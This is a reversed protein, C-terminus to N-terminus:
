EPPEAFMVVRFGIRDRRASPDIYERGTSLFPPGRLVRCEGSEPGPPDSEPSRAYYDKAYWDQCWEYVNDETYQLGWVNRPVRCVPVPQRFDHDEAFLDTYSTSIDYDPYVSASSRDHQELLVTGARCAYEWEAETPLRYTKAEIESLRGCFAVADHWSVNVVPSSDTRSTCPHHGVVDQYQKCTVRHVSMCFGSTITVWHPPTDNRDPDPTGPSGMLFAGPPIHVMEMGITNVVGAPAGFPTPVEEATGSGSGAVVTGMVFPGLAQAVEGMSQYRVCAHGAMMRAVVNALPLPVDPALTCVPDPGHTPDALFDRSSLGRVFPTRGTLMLYLTCGLSYVDARADLTQGPVGREPAEYDTTGMALERRTVITSDSVSAHERESRPLGMSTVKPTGAEDILIRSPTIHRHRVGRGLAHELALAVQRAIDAAHTTSLRGKQELLRLLDTGEVYAMAVYVKRHEVGVDYVPVINPHDLRISARADRVLRALAAPGTQRPVRVVKLALTRRRKRDCVKYVSSSARTGALRDLLIYPGVCLHTHGALLQEAQFATLLDRRVLEDALRSGDGVAVSTWGEIEQVERADLLGSARLNALFQSASPRPM